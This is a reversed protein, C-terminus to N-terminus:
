QPSLILFQVWHQGSDFSGNAEISLRDKCFHKLRYGAEVKCSYEKQGFSFLSSLNLSFPIVSKM